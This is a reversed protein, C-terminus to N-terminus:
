QPVCFVTCYEGHWGYWCEVSLGVRVLINNFYGYDTSVVTDTDASTIWDDVTYDISYFDYTVLDFDRVILVTQIHRSWSGYFQYQVPNDIGVGFINDGEIFTLNDQDTYAYHFLTVHSSTTSNCFNSTENHERVCVVFHADCSAPCVTANTFDCCEGNSLRGNLLVSWIYFFVDYGQPYGSYVETECESGTYGNSCSCTYSNDGDTCVGGNLCPTSECDDINVECNDGAFGADCVCSCVFM